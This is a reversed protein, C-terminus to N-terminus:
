RLFAVFCIGQLLGMIGVGILFGLLFFRRRKRIILRAIAIGAIGFFLIAALAGGGAGTNAIFALVGAALSCAGAVLFGLVAYGPHGRDDSMPVQYDLPQPNQPPPQQAASDM